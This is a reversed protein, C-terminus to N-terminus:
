RKVTAAWSQLDAPLRADADGFAARFATLEQAAEALKGDRVLAHIREIWEAASRQQADALASKAMAPPAVSQAVAGARNEAAEKPQDRAAPFPEPARARDTEARAAPAEAKAAPAQAARDARLKARPAEAAPRSTEAKDMVAPAAPQVPAPAPVPVAAPPTDSVIASTADPEKPLLQLVGIAIAGITAAAALPMWWRWPRTAEAPKANQPASRVARHAAALITADLAAPPQEASHARLLADLEANAHDRDPTM